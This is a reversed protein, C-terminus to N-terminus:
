CAYGTKKGPGRPKGIFNALGTIWCSPVLLLIGGPTFLVTESFTMKLRHQGVIIGYLAHHYSSFHHYMGSIPSHKNKEEIVPASPGGPYPPPPDSSM